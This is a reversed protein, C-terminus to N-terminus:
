RLSFWGILKSLWNSSPRGSDIYSRLTHTLRSTVNVEGSLDLLKSLFELSAVSICVESLPAMLPNHPPNTFSFIATKDLGKFEYYNSFAAMNPHSYESLFSYISGAEGKKGWENFCRIIKGIERPTPFQQENEEESGEPFKERMYLSGMNVETLLKWASNLKKEELYQAVHKQVYYSHAVIEFLCRGVVFAAPIKGRETLLLFSRLMERYHSLLSFSYMQIGWNILDPTPSAKEAVDPRTLSEFKIQDLKQVVNRLRPLDRNKKELPLVVNGAKDMVSRNDRNAM